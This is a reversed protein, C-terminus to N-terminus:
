LSFAKGAIWGVFASFSLASFAGEQVTHVKLIYYYYV